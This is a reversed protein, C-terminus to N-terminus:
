KHRRDTRGKSRAHKTEIKSKATRRKSSLGVRDPDVAILAKIAEDFNLPHLSVPRAKPM